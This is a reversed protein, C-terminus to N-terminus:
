VTSVYFFYINLEVSFCSLIGKKQGMDHVIHIQTSICRHERARLDLLLWLEVIPLFKLWHHPPLPHLHVADQDVIHIGLCGSDGHLM